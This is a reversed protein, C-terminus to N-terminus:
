GSAANLKSAIFEPEGAVYPIDAGSRLTLRTNGTGTASLTEVADANVWIIREPQGAQSFAIFKAM